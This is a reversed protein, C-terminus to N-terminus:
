AVEAFLTEVEASEVVQLLRYYTRHNYVFSDLVLVVHSHELEILLAEDKPDFKFKVVDSNRSDFDVITCSRDIKPNGDSDRQVEGKYEKTRVVTKMLIGRVIAIM